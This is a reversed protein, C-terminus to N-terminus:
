RGLLDLHLLSAHPTGPLCEHCWVGFACPTGTKDAVALIARLAILTQNRRIPGFMEIITAHHVTPRAVVATIFEFSHNVKGSWLLIAWRYTLPALM